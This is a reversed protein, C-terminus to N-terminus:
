LKKKRKKKFTSFVPIIEVFNENRHVGDTISPSIKSTPRAAIGACHQWLVKFTTSCKLYLVMKGHLGSGIRQRQRKLMSKLNFIWFKFRKQLGWINKPAESAPFFFCDCSWWKKPLFHFLSSKKILYVIIIKTTWHLKSCSSKKKM